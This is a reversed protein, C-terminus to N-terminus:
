VELYPGKMGPNSMPVWTSKPPTKELLITFVCEAPHEERREKSHLKWEIVQADSIETPTVLLTVM